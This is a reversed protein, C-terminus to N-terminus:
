RRSDREPHPEVRTPDTIIQEAKARHVQHVYIRAAPAGGYIMRRSSSEAFTARIREETLAHVILPAQWLAVTAVWVVAESDRADPGEADKGLLRRLWGVERLEGTPPLDNSRGSRGAQALLVPPDRDVEIVPALHKLSLWVAVPHPRLALPVV